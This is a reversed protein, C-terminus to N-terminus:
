PRPHAPPPPRDHHPPPQPPPEGPWILLVACQAHDVVFRTARGLSRPGTRSRDGDRAVVLLSADAVAAVVEREARGRRLDRTAPRGLRAEAAAFMGEEAERTAAEVARGPDLGRGGRGVLGAFAGHVGEALSPDSVQLLVIEADVRAADKAADVCAEWTGFTLWAIIKM